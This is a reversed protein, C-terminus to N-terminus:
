CGKSFSGGLFDIHYSADCKECVRRGTLRHLLREFPIEIDIVYDINAIKCFPIFSNSSCPLTCEM